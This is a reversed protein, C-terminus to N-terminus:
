MDRHYIRLMVSAANRPKLVVIVSDYVNDVADAIGEDTVTVDREIKTITEQFLKPFKYIFGYTLFVGILLILLTYVVTRTTSKSNQKM